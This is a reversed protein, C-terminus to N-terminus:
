LSICFHLRVEESEEQIKKKKRQMRKKLQLSSIRGHLNSFGGKDKAMGKVWVAVGGAVVVGRPSWGPLSQNHVNSKSITALGRTAILPLSTTSYTQLHLSSTQLTQLHRKPRRSHSLTGSQVGSSLGSQVGSNILFSTSSHIHTITGVQPSTSSTCPARRLTQWALLISQQNGANSPTTHAQLLTAAVGRIILTRGLM